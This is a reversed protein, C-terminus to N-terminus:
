PQSLRYIGEIEIDLEQRCIDAHLYIVQPDNFARNIIAKILPLQKAHRLYVKLSDLVLDSKIKVKVSQILQDINKITLHTQKEISNAHQSEHGTISATGSVYLTDRHITARAFSPSAPGYQRPYRYASVQNPNEFHDCKTKSALLYITLHDGYSGLASAASYNLAPHKLNSFARYRGQCFKRYREADGEGENIKPFYNWARVIHPYGEIEIFSLLNRYANLSTDELNEIAKDEITTSCFLIDATKSWNIGHSNEGQAIVSEAIWLEKDVGSELTNLGPFVTSIPARQM